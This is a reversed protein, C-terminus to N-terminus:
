KHDILKYYPEVSRNRVVHYPVNSIQFPVRGNPIGNPNPKSNKNCALAKDLTGITMTFIYLDYLFLVPLIRLGMSAVRGNKGNIVNRASNKYQTYLDGFLTMSKSVRATNKSVPVINLLTLTLTTKDANKITIIRSIVIQKQKGFTDVSLQGFTLCVTHLMENSSVLKRQTM